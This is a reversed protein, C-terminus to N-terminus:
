GRAAGERGARARPDLRAEVFMTASRPDFPEGKHGGDIRIVALGAAELMLQLEFRYIPRMRFAYPRRAVTGDATVQEYWGTLACVQDADMAGLQNVRRYPRGHDPHRRTFVPRPAPDGAPDSRQPNVCELALVGDPALHRAATRLAERQMAFDPMCVLGNFALMVLAFDRRGLDLGVADAEVLALRGAAEPVRALTERCRALLGACIDVGVVPHGDAALPLALRGSGCALELIPGGGARALAQYRPLDHAYGAAIQDLNEPYLGYRLSPYDGDYYEVIPDDDPIGPNM